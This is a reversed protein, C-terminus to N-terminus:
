KRRFIRKVMRAVKKYFKVQGFREMSPVNGLKLNIFDVMKRQDDFYIRENTGVYEITGRWVVRSKYSFDECEIRIIFTHWL